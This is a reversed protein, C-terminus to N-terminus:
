KKESQKQEEVWKRLLRDIVSSLARQHPLYKKVEKHLDKKVTLSIIKYDDLM